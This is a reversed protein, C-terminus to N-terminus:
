PRMQSYLKLRERIAFASNDPVNTRIWDNIWSLFVDYTVARIIMLEALLLSGGAITGLDDRVRIPAEDDRPGDTFVSSDVYNTKIRLRFLYDILTIPSVKSNVLMKEELTLQPLRVRPMKRPKKGLQIRGEEQKQLLKRKESQKRTRAAKLAEELKADRTTRYAKCVLSWASVSSCHSWNHIDEDISIHPPINIPGKLGYSLTWPELVLNRGALLSFFMGQTKNHSQPRQYGKAIGMAQASHYVIYYAQVISWNNSLKILEPDHISHKGMDLLLETGWANRLSSLIQNNDVRTQSSQTLFGSRDIRAALESYPLDSHCLDDTRVLTALARIYNSHTRFSEVQSSIM